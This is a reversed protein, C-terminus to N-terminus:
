KKGDGGAQAAEGEVFQLSASNICYRQGTPKPGDDFVHGLHGKCRSCHVETRRWGHSLDLEEAVNAKVAPAYFSPWGTGSEYKTSADFLPVGCGGCSYTGARKEDAKGTSTGSKAGTDVTSSSNRNRKRRAM